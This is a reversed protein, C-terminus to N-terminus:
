EPPFASDPPFGDEQRWDGPVLRERRHWLGNAFHYRVYDRLHRTPVQGPQLGTLDPIGSVEEVDEARPRSALHWAIKPSNLLTLEIPDPTEPDTYRQWEFGDNIIWFFRTVLGEYEGTSTHCDVGVAWVQTHGQPLPTENLEALPCDFHRMALTNGAQDQLRLMAPRIVPDFLAAISPDQVTEGLSTAIELPAKSGGWMVRRMGPTIRADELIELRRGNLDGHDIFITQYVTYGSDSSPACSSATLCLATMMVAVLSGRYKM